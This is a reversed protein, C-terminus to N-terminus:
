DERLFLKPGLTWAWVAAALIWTLAAYVLHRNREPFMFDASVRALLALILLALSAILFGMRKQFLHVHGSHGLVVRTSVTFLIISFGGIFTLHLNAVRYVPLVAPLLL